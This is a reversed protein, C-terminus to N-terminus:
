VNEFVLSEPLRPDRLPVLAQRRSAWGFAALFFGSAGILATLDVFSPAASQPHLGPMIIWYLDLAHMLLMWVAGAALTAANKKISRPMLYFFPVVFHGVVLLATASRWSGVLRAAMYGTEDPINAYWILLYQSFAIYGWFSVFAFLLLGLTHVHEGTLASAFAQEQRQALTVLCMFAYIAVLCGAFIYVGFMTSYWDADLAMLWDFGAFTVTLAFLILAPASVTRLRSLRAFWTACATWIAFYLINRLVFFSTNLLPQKHALVPDHAVTSPNTWPFLHGLNLVLPVFLLALWPLTAMANEGTRRVAVSWGAQTAHHILVFFLGGLGLTLAFFSGFLWSRWLQEPHALGLALTLGLGVVALGIGIVPLRKWAPLHEVQLESARLPPPSTRSAHAPDSM